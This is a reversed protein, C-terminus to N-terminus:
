VDSPLIAAPGHERQLRDEKSGGVKWYGAAMKLLRAQLVVAGPELGGDEHRSAERWAHRDRDSNGMKLLVGTM